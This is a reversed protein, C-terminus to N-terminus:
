IIDFACEDTTGTLEAWRASLLKAYDLYVLGYCGLAYGDNVEILLTEGKDTLGFDIAYGAPACTFDRVAKEITVHDPRVRWDGRYHRVDLIKGYRVFCRCESVFNVVESCLVPQNQGYIGAGILNKPSNVVVGTFQKDEVPKVFIPWLEPSGAIENIKASWIKRGLYANLEDPYDMEPATIGFRDLAYRVTDVYGVVVDELKSENLDCRQNFMVTEFGMERFGQYANMFNYNCPIGHKDSQIFARM